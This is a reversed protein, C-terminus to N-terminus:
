YLELILFIMAATILTGIAMIAIEGVSFYGFIRNNAASRLASPPIRSSHVDASETFKEGAADPSVNEQADLSVPPPLEKPLISDLVLLATPEHFKIVTEFDSKAGEKESLSIRDDNKLRHPEDLPKDNLLVNGAQLPYLLVGTWDKRIQARPVAIKETEATVLCEGGDMWGLWMEENEVYVRRKEGDENDIQFYFREEARLSELIDKLNGESKGATFDPPAPNERNEVSFDEINESIGAEDSRANREATESELFIAYDGVAIVDGPKLNHFAGQALMEGNVFTGDARCLLMMQDAECVIVFQEPAINEGALEILSSAESGVTIIGDAPIERALGDVFVDRNKVLLRKTM